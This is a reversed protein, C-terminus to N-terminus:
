KAKKVSFKRGLKEWLLFAKYHLRLFFKKIETFKPKEPQRGDSAYVSFEEIYPKDRCQEIEFVLGDCETPDFM